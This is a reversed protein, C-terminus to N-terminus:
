EHGFSTPGLELPKFAGLYSRPWLVVGPRFFVKRFRWSDRAGAFIPHGRPCSRATRSPRPPDSRRAYAHRALVCSTHYHRDCELRVCTSTGSPPTAAVLAATQFGGRDGTAAPAATVPADTTPEPQADSAPQLRALLSAEGGDHAPTVAAPTAAPSSKQKKQTPTPIRFRGRSGGGRKM